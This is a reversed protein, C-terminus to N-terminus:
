AQLSERKFDLAKLAAALAGTDGALIFMRDGKEPVTTGNPTIYRGVRQIM